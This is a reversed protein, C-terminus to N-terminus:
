KGGIHKHCLCGISYAELLARRRSQKVPIYQYSCKQTRLKNGDGDFYYDVFSSLGQLHNSLRQKIGYQARPTQGVHLIQKKQNRIIYVGKQISAELKKRRQPFSYIPQKLLKKLLYKIIKSEKM